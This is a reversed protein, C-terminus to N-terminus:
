VSLFNFELCVRTAGMGYTSSKVQGKLAFGREERETCLIYIYGM